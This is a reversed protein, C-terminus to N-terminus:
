RLLTEVHIGFRLYRCRQRPKLGEREAIRVSVRAALFVLVGLVIPPAIITGSTDIEDCLACKGNAWDMFYGTSCTDCM